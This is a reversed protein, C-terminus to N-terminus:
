VGVCGADVIVAISLVFVFLGSTTIHPLLSPGPTIHSRSIDRPLITPRAFTSHTPALNPSPSITSRSTSALPSPAPTSPDAPLARAM